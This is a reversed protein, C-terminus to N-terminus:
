FRQYRLERYAWIHLWSAKNIDNESLENDLSLLINKDYLLSGELFEKSDGKIV